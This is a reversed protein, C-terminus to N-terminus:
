GAQDGKLVRGTYVGVQRFMEALNTGYSMLGGADVYERAAYIAPISHRAALTSLQVRRSNFFPDPTSLLADAREAMMTAFAADIELSQTANIVKIQQPVERAAAEVDRLIAEATPNTPNVLM